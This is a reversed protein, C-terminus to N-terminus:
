CVAIPNVPSGTGGKIMLPALCFQFEYVEDRALAALDLLELLYIGLNRLFPIHLDYRYKTRPDEISTNAFGDFGNHPNVAVNDAGLLCIGRDALILGGSAGIGPQLGGYREPDTKFTESWGTRVLVADGPEVTVFQRQLAAEIHDATVLFDAPLADVGALAPMDIMVGRTVLGEFREIGLKTAGYSRVADGRFGNYMTDESWMHCLADLHTTVGHVPIVVTDEAFRRDDGGAANWRYGAAYDGGDFSMFHQPSPRGAMMPVNSERIDQGLRYLRGDQVMSAGRRMADGDVLNLAGRQDDPGWRGRNSREALEAAAALEQELSPAAIGPVEKM